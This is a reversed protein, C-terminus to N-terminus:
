NCMAYKDTYESFAVKFSFFFHWTRGSSIYLASVMKKRRTFDTYLLLGWFDFYNLSTSVDSYHMADCSNMRTFWLLIWTPGLPVSPSANSWVVPWCNICSPWCILWQLISWFYSRQCVSVQRSAEEIFAFGEREKFHTGVM